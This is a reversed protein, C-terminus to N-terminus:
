DCVCAPIKKFSLIEMQGFCPRFSIFAAIESKSLPPDVVVDQSNLFAFDGDLQDLGMDIAVRRDQLAPDM